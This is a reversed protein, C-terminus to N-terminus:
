KNNRKDETRKEVWEFGLHLIFTITSIGIIDIWNVETRYRLQVILLAIFMFLTFLLSKKLM